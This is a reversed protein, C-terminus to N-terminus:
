REEAWGNRKKKKLCFVAYSIKVHSSNLRTSKRDQGGLVGLREQADFVASDVGSALLGATRHPVEGLADPAREALDEAERERDEADDGAEADAVGDLGSLDGGRDLPLEGVVGEPGGRPRAQDDEDRDAQHDQAADPPEAADGRGQHREHDDE